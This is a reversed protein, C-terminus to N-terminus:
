AIELYCDAVDFAGTDFFGTGEIHIRTTGAAGPQWLTLPGDCNDLDVPFFLATVGVGGAWGYIRLKYGEPEGFAGAEVRTLQLLDWLCPLGSQLHWLCNQFASAGNPGNGAYPMLFTTAPLSTGDCGTNMKLVAKMTWAASGDLCLECALDECPSCSDAIDAPESYLNWARTQGIRIPGTAITGTGLGWKKGGHPTVPYWSIGEEMYDTTFCGGAAITLAGSLPFDWLLTNVGSTRKYMKSRKSDSTGSVGYNHNLIEVFHYNNDDLYDYVLRLADGAILQEGSNIISPSLHIGPNNGDYQHRSLLLSDSTTVNLKKIGAVDTIEWDGSRVEWDDADVDGAVSFPEDIIVCTGSCCCGGGSMRMGM